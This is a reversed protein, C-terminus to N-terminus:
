NTLTVKVSPVLYKNHYKRMLLNEYSNPKELVEKRSKQWKDNSEKHWAIDKDLPVLAINPEISLSRIKKINGSKDKYEGESYIKNHETLLKEFVIFFGEDPIQIKQSSFDIEIKSNGKETEIVVEKSLLNKSPSGDSNKEVLYFRIKAKDIESLTRFKIKNIFPYKEIDQESVAIFVANSFYNSRRRFGYTEYYDIVKKQTEQSQKIVVEKLQIPNSKLTVKQAESSNIMVTQYGLCSFILKKQENKLNLTFTGDEETTTGLNENEVWINVYSIPKNNDDVVIGKIQASLPFTILLLLTATKM